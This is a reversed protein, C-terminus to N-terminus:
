LHQRQSKSKMKSPWENLEQIVMGLERLPNSFAAFSRHQSEILGMTVLLPHARIPSLDVYLLYMLNNKMPANQVFLTEDHLGLHFDSKAEFKSLM